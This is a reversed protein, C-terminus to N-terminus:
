PTYLYINYIYCDMIIKNSPVIITNNYQISYQIKCIYMILVVTCHLIYLIENVMDTYTINTYVYIYWVDYM